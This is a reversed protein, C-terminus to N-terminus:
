PEPLVFAQGPFILDPVGAHVLRDSNAAVLRRWYSGIEPLSPPRGLHASIAADAISWFSDGPKVTYLTLEPVSPAAVVAVVAVDALAISVPPPPVVRPAAFAAGAGSTALVTSVLFTRLSPLTLRNVLRGAGSWAPVLLHLVAIVTLYTAAGLALLRLLSMAADAPGVEVLWREIDRRPLPFRSSLRLLESSAAVAIALLALPRRVM